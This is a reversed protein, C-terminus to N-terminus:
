LREDLKNPSAAHELEPILGAIARLLDDKDVRTRKQVADRLMQVFADIADAGVSAAYPIALLGSLGVDRANENAGVFEEFAKEGITDLPTLLLPYRGRKLESDVARVAEQQDTFLSPEYGHHEIFEVAIAELLRL